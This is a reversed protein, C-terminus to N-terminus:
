EVIEDLHGLGAEVEEHQDSGGDAIVHGGGFGRGGAIGEGPEAEEVGEEAGGQGGACGGDEVLIEFAVVVGDHLAGGVAREGGAANGRGFGEGGAQEQGGG